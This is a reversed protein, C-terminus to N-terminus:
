SVVASVEQELLWLEKDEEAPDFSFWLGSMFNPLAKETLPKQGM